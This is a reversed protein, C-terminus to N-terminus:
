ATPKLHNSIKEPIAIRNIESIKRRALEYDFEESHLTRESLLTCYVMAYKPWDFAKSGVGRKLSLFDQM